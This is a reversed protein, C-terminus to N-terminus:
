RRSCANPLRLVEGDVAMDFFVKQGAKIQPPAATQGADSAKQLEEPSLSDQQTKLVANVGSTVAVGAVNPATAGTTSTDIVAAAPLPQLLLAGAAVGTPLTIRRSYAM